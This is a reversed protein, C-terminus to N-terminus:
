KATQRPRGYLRALSYGDHKSPKEVLGARGAAARFDEAVEFTPAGRIGYSGSHYHMISDFDYPTAGEDMNLVAYAYLFQPEVNEWLIRIYRDRDTRQHEHMLGLVHGLEHILAKRWTWCWDQTMAMERVEGPVYGVHTWCGGLRHMRHVRLYGEESERRVCNVAARREWVACASFFAVEEAESAGVFQVPVIGNPWPRSRYERFGTVARPGLVGERGGGPGPAAFSALDDPSLMMDGAVVGQAAAGSPPLAFTLLVELLM